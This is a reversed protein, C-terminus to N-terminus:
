SPQPIVTGQLSRAFMQDILTRRSCSRLRMTVLTLYSKLPFFATFRGAFQDALRRPKWTLIMIFLTGGFLRWFGSLFNLVNPTEFANSPQVICPEFQDRKASRYNNDQVLKIVSINRSPFSLAHSLIFPLSRYSVRGDWSGAACLHSPDVLATVKLLEFLNLDDRAFQPAGSFDRTIESGLCWYDSHLLVTRV